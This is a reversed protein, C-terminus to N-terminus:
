YWVPLSISFAGYSKDHSVCCGIWIFDNSKRIVFKFQPVHGHVYFLSSDSILLGALFAGMEMSLGVHKTALATGLVILVASATFVEANGSLAVRHLIPHLFYRGIVVILGLILISEALAFGIDKGISLEPITLLPVLALLPVVALDQLLLVSFSTRGYTSTLSKQETM